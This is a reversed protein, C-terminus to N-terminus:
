LDSSACLRSEPGNEAVDESMGIEQERVLKFELVKELAQPLRIEKPGFSGAFQFLFVCVNLRVKCVECTPFLLPM